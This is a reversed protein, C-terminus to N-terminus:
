TTSLCYERMTTAQLKHARRKSRSTTNGSIIKQQENLVYLVRCVNDEFERLDDLDQQGDVVVEVM